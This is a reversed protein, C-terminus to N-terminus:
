AAPLPLEPPSPVLPASAARAGVVRVTRGLQVAMDAAVRKMDVITEHSTSRDCALLLSPKPRKARALSRVLSRAIAARGQEVSEAARRSAVFFVTPPLRKGMVLAEARDRVRQAFLAPPEHSRQIVVTVAVGAGALERMWQGWRTGHEAVLMVDAPETPARVGSEYGALVGELAGLSPPSALSKPAPASPISPHSPSTM